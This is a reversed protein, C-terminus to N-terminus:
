DWGPYQGLSQPFSLSPPAGLLPWAAKGRCCASGLRRRLGAEGGLGRRCCRRVTWRQKGLASAEEWTGSTSISASCSDLGGSDAVELAERLEPQKSRAVERPQEPGAEQGVGGAALFGCPAPPRGPYLEGLLPLVTGSPPFLSQPSADTGEHGAMWSPPGPPAM